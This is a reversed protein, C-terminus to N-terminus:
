EPLVFVRESRAERERKRERERERERERARVCACVCVCVGHRGVQRGVRGWLATYGGM